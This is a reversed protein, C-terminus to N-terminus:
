VLDTLFIVIMQAKDWIELIALESALPRQIDSFDVDYRSLKTPLAKDCYVRFDIRLNFNKM